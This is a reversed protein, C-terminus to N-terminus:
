RRSKPSTQGGAGSATLLPEAIAQLGASRANATVSAIVEPASGVRGKKRGAGHAVIASEAAGSDSIPASRKRSGAAAASGSGLGAALSLAHGGSSSASSVGAADTSSPAAARATQARIREEMNAAAQRRQEESFIPGDLPVYQSTPMGEVLVPGPSAAPAVDAPNVCRGQTYPLHTM